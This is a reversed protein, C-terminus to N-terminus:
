YTLSFGLKYNRLPMPYGSVLQYNKNLINNVEFKTQVEIDFMEFNIFINGDLLETAPLYSSNEFDTYRKGILDYFFNIGVNKVFLSFNTKFNNKPIYFIQKNFTPDGPYESSKKVSSTYAYKFTVSSYVNKSFEKDMSIDVSFVDSRSSVLNVPLWLGSPQPRWIIKDNADIHTYSLDLTNNSFLEFNYILGVDFNISRESNLERNGSNKWYLENFTPARLNNGVSTRLHLKIREFPKFNFGLKSSLYNKNIDSYNDFRISPYIKLSENYLLDLESLLYIGTQIRKANDEVENSKLKAYSFDYGVSTKIKKYSYDLQSNSTYVLNKYYSNTITRNYYNMLNNQINISSRIKFNNSLKNEYTLINNWNRDIQKTDSSPSGSEIGPLSRENELYDSYFNIKGKESFPYLVTFTYNKFGYDSNERNKLIESVGNFYYYDFDDKSSENMYNLSFTLMDIKKSANLLFKKYGYSGYQNLFNISFDNKLLFDSKTVVNVVGGSADSGYVSSHGNNIVEVREINDKSILSLDIQSNQFSNMRVGDLLILINEQSLGNYSLTKLSSNSGYSKIYVGGSMQLIDSLREGNRNHIQESNFIDVKSPSSYIDTYLRTGTIIIEDTSYKVSDDQAFCVNLIILLYLLLILSSVLLINRITGM